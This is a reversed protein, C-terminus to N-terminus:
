WCGVFRKGISPTRRILNSQCELKEKSVVKIAGSARIATNDVDVYRGVTSLNATGKTTLLLGSSAALRSRIGPLLVHATSGDSNVVAGIKGKGLTDLKTLAVQLVLCVKKGIDYITFKM